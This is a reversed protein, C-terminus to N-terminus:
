RAVGPAEASTGISRAERSFGGFLAARHAREMREPHWQVGLVFRAPDSSEIAEVIGDAARAVVRLGRGPEAVAQHHSSNVALPGAHFLSALRSGAEVRIAHRAGPQPLRHAAAAPRESPIDYVLSGGAHKALLQMGYCIGLVPLGRALAAELVALDGALEAPAVLDFAVATPYPRPPAFDGGGPILLGALGALADAAAGAALPVATAGAEALAEVYRADLREAARLVGIRPGVGM